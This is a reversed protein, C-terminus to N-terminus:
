QHIPFSNSISYSIELNKSKINRFISLTLLLCRDHCSNADFSRHCINYYTFILKLYVNDFNWFFSFFLLLFFQELVCLIINNHMVCISVFVLSLSHWWMFQNHFIKFKGLAFSNFTM